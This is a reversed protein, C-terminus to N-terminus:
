LLGHTKVMLYPPKRDIKGYILGIFSPLEIIHETMIALHGFYKNEPHQWISDDVNKLGM